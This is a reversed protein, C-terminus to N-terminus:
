SLAWNLYDETVQVPEVVIWEPTEYPHNARIASEIAAQHASSFKAMLRCEQSAEVEGKWRYFSRVEPEVQVCASLGRDILHTAIREAVDITDCTTWGILLVDDM